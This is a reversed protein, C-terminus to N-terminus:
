ICLLMSTSAGRQQQELHLNKERMLEVEKNQLAVAKNQLLNLGIRADERTPYHWDPEFVEKNLREILNEIATELKEVKDKTRRIDSELEDPMAARAVFGAAASSDCTHAIQSGQM